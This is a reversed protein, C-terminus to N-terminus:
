KRILVIRSFQYNQTFIPLLNLRSMVSDLWSLPPLVKAAMHAAQEQDQLTALYQGADLTFRTVPVIEEIDFNASFLRQLEPIDFPTEKPSFWWGEQDAQRTLRSQAEVIGADQPLRALYLKQLLRYSARLFLDQIRGFLTRKDLYVPEVLVIPFGKPASALAKAFSELETTALHHIGCHIFVGDYQGSRFTDNMQNIDMKLYECNSQGVEQAKQRAMAIQSESFDVGVVRLSPSALLRGPWGSGCAIELIKLDRSGLLQHFRKGIDTIYQQRVGRCISDPLGWIREILPANIDWWQMEQEDLEPTTESIRPRRSFAPLTEL